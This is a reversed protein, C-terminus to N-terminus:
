RKEKDPHQVFVLYFFRGHYINTAVERLASNSCHATLSPANSRGTDPIIWDERSHHYAEGVWGRGEGRRLEWGRSRGEAGQKTKAKNVLGQLPLCRVTSSIANKSFIVLSWLDWVPTQFIQYCDGPEVASSWNLTHGFVQSCSNTMKVVYLTLLGLVSKSSEQMAPPQM